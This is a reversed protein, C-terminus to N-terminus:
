FGIALHMIALIGEGKLHLSKLFSLPVSLYPLGDVFIVNEGYPYNLCETWAGKEFAIHYLLSHYTHGADGGLAIMMHAPDFVIYSLLLITSLIACIIAVFLWVKQRHDM